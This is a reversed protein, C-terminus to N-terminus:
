REEDKPFKFFSKGACNKKNRANTCSIASCFDGGQKVRDAMREVQRYPRDSQVSTRAKPKSTRQRQILDKSIITSFVSKYVSWDFFWHKKKLNLTQNTCWDTLWQILFFYKEFKTKPWSNFKLIACVCVCVSVCVCACACVSVSCEQFM